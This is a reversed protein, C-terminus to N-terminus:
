CGIKVDTLDGTHFWGGSMTGNGFFGLVFNKTPGTATSDFRVEIWPAAGSGSLALRATVMQIVSGACTTSAFTADQFSYPDPPSFSATWTGSEVAATGDFASYTGNGAIAVTAYDCGPTANQCTPSFIWTGSITYSRSGMYTVGPPGTFERLVVTDFELCGSNTGFACTPGIGPIDGGRAAYSTCEGANRFATGDARTLTEYGGARCGHAADTNGSVAVSAGAGVVLTLVVLGIAIRIRKM